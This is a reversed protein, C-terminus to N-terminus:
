LQVFYESSPTRSYSLTRVLNVYYGEGLSSLPPLGEEHLRAEGSVGHAKPVALKQTAHAIPEDLEKDVSFTM